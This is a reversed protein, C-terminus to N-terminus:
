LSITTRLEQKFKVTVKKARVTKNFGCALRYDSVKIELGDKSSFEIIVGDDIILTKEKKDIVKVSFHFHFHAECRVHNERSFSDDIIIKKQNFTFQRRHEGKLKKYGDHEGVCTNKDVSVNTVSARKGVRFAGWMESQSKNAVTVTNHSATSREEERTKNINYTSTGRDVILPQNNTNLEFSLTDSHSHGPQYRPSIGGVDIFLEYKEERIMRYGSASLKSLRIRLDLSRAYDFIENSRRAIGYSCDNVMPVEGNSYTIANLFSLMDEAKKRLYFLFELDSIWPNRTILLISDILRYLIIKHYMPSLEFHGGDVLIQEELESYLFKKAKKYFKQDQFYYSGFLLSFANELLHNGLLHFELNKLLVQYNYYLFQDIASSKISNQSIFKIWNIGRLSTPYPDCGVIILDKKEIFDTILSVKEGIEVDSQNLFDFYNLNYTWLKGYIELNWNIDATFRHKINLFQFENNEQFYSREVPLFNEWHISKFQPIRKVYKPRIKTIGRLAYYLRYYIQIPRLNILTNFLLKLRGPDM